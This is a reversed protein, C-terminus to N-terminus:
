NKDLWTAKPQGTKSLEIVYYSNSKSKRVPMGEFTEGTTKGTWVPYEKGSKASIAKIFESGTKTSWVDFTKGNLSITEGTKTATSVGFDGGGTAKKSYQASVIGCLLFMVTFLLIRKM